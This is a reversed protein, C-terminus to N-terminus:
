AAFLDEAAVFTVDTYRSAHDLLRMMVGKMADSVEWYHTALCFDGGARRAEEFGSV